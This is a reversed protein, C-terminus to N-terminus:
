LHLSVSALLQSWVSPALSTVHDRYADRMVMWGTGQGWVPDADEEVRHEHEHEDKEEEAMSYTGEVKTARLFYMWDLTLLIAIPLAPKPWVNPFFTPEGPCEAELYTTREDKRGAHEGGIDRRQSRAYQEGPLAHDGCVCSETGGMPSCLSGRSLVRVADDKTCRTRLPELM